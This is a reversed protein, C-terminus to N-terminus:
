YRRLCRDCSKWADSVAHFVSTALDREQDSMDKLGNADWRDPHWRLQEKHLQRKLQSLQSQSATSMDISIESNGHENIEYGPSLSFPRLFFVFVNYKMLEGEGARSRPNRQFLKDIEHDKSPWPIGTRQSQNRLEIWKTNYKELMEGAEEPAIEPVPEEDFVSPGFFGADDWFDFNRTRSRKRSSEGSSARPIGTGWFSRTTRRRSSNMPEFMDSFMSDFMEDFHPFGPFGPFSPFGPFGPSGGFPDHQRRTQRYRRQESGNEHEQGHVRMHYRLARDHESDSEGPLARTGFPTQQGMFGSPRGFSPGDMMPGFFSDMLSPGSLFPDSQQFPSMNTHYTTRPPFGSSQTQQFFYNGGDNQTFSTSFFGSGFANNPSTSQTSTTQRSRSGPAPSNFHSPMDSEGFPSDFSGFSSFWHPM